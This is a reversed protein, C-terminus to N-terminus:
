RMAIFNKLIRLGVRGSKEPHFQCGHINKSRVVAAITRGHYDCDAVRHDADAPMARFSHAFYTSSESEVGEIITGDWDAGPAHRIESWGVHPLRLPRGDDGSDPIKLVKGPLLALGDHLGFEESQEFLMQMGLCIGLLPGGQEVFKRVPEVLGCEHMDEMSDAFAGVGPLLLREANKIDNRDATQVPKSGCYEIAGRVSFMNGVGYDVITVTAM